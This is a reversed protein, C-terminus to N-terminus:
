NKVVKFTKTVGEITVTIIYNGTPLGSMDVQTNNANAVVTVKQGLMNFLNIQAIESNSTLNLVDGVPNPYFRFSFSEFDERGVTFIVNVALAEGTCLGITQTVYYTTNDEVETAGELEETLDADAYWQLNEGEVILEALTTGDDVMQTAEGTPAPITVGECPDTGELYVTIAL